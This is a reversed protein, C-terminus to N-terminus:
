LLARVLDENGARMRHPSRAKAMTAHDEMWAPHGSLKDLRFQRRCFESADSKKLNSSTPLDVGPEFFVAQSSRRLMRVELFCLDSLTQTLVPM